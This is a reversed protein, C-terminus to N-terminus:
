GGDTLCLMVNPNTECIEKDIAGAGIVPDNKAMMIFTPVKISPIRHYCSARNYYDDGGDFGFMRSTLRDDWEVLTDVDRFLSEVDIGKTRYYHEHIISVKDSFKNKLFKCLVKNYLGFM